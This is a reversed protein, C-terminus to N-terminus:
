KVIVGFHLAISTSAFSPHHLKRVGKRLDLTLKIKISHELLYSTAQSAVPFLLLPSFFALRAQFKVYRLSEGHTSRVSINGTKAQSELIKIKLLSAIRCKLVCSCADWPARSKGFASFSCNKLVLNVAM